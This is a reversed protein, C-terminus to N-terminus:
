SGYHTIRLFFGCIVCTVCIPYGCLPPWSRTWRGYMLSLTESDTCPTDMRMQSLQTM